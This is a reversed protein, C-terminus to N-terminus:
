LSAVWLAPRVGGVDKAATNDTYFEGDTSVWCVASHNVLYYHPDRLWWCDHFNRSLLGSKYALIDGRKRAYATPKCRRASSSSFYREVEDRSLLFITDQTNEARAASNVNDVQLIKAQEEKTFATNMFENNLWTRMCSYKWSRSNSQKQADLIRKSVLLYRGRNEALVLWEIPDKEHFGTWDQEYRGFKVTSGVALKQEQAKKRAREQEEAADKLRTYQTLVETFRRELDARRGNDEDREKELALIHEKLAANEAELEPDGGLCAADLPSVAFFDKYTLKQAYENPENLLHATVTMNEDACASYWANMPCAAQSRDCVSFFLTQGKKIGKQVAILPLLLEARFCDLCGAGKFHEVLHFLHQPAAGCNIIVVSDSQAFPEDDDMNYERKILGVFDDISRANECRLTQYGGCSVNAGDATDWAGLANQTIITVIRM